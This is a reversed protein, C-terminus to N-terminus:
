WDSVRVLIDQVVVQLYCAGGPKPMTGKHSEALDESIFPGAELGCIYDNKVVAVYYLAVEGVRVSM